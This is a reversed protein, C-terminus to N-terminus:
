KIEEKGKFKKWKLETELGIQFITSHSQNIKLLKNFNVSCMIM